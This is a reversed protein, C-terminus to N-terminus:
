REQAGIRRMGELLATYRPLNDSNSSADPTCAGSTVAFDGVFSPAYIKTPESEEVTWINASVPIERSKEQIAVRTGPRLLIRRLLAVGDPSCRLGDLRVRRGDTLEIVGDSSFDNIVSSPVHWPDPWPLKPSPHKQLVSHMMQRIEAIRSEDAGSKANLPDAAESAHSGVLGSLALALSLGKRIM